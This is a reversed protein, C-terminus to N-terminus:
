ARLLALAAVVVVAWSLVGLGFAIAIGAGRSLRADTDLDVFERPPLPLSM